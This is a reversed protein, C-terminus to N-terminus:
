SEKSLLLRAAERIRRKTEEPSVYDRRPKWETSKAVYAARKVSFLGADMRKTGYKGYDPLPMDNLAILGRIYSDAVAVAGQAIQHEHQLWVYGINGQFAVLAPLLHKRLVSTMRWAAVPLAAVARKREAITTGALLRNIGEVDVPRDDWEKIHVLSRSFLDGQSQLNYLVEQAPHVVVYRLEPEQWGLRSAGTEIREERYLGGTMAEEALRTRAARRVMGVVPRREFHINDEYNEPAAVLWEEAETIRMICGGRITKLRGFTYADVGDLDLGPNYVYLYSRHPAPILALATAAAPPRSFVRLPSTVFAVATSVLQIFTRRRM